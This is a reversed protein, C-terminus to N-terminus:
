VGLDGCAVYTKIEATSKHVNIGLPLENQLQTMSANITTTSQGNKVNNLPYKVDAVDPCKGIHIHAPQDSGVPAGALVVKVTVKGATETLTATGTQGSSGQEGLNVTMTKTTSVSPTTTTVVTVMTSPIPSTYDPMSTTPSPNTDYNNTISTNTPQTPTTQMAYWIGGGVVLVAIVAILVKM